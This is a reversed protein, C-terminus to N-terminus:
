MDHSYTEDGFDVSYHYIVENKMVQGINHGNTQNILVRTGTPVRKDEDIILDDEEIIELLKQENVINM